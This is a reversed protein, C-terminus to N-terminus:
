NLAKATSMKGIAGDRWWYRRWWGWGRSGDDGYGSSGGRAAGCEGGGEDGVSGGCRTDECSTALVRMAGGEEGLTSRPWLAGIKSRSSSPAAVANVAAKGPSALSSSAPPPPLVPSQPPPPFSSSLPLLLPLPLSSLAASSATPASLPRRLGLIVYFSYCVFSIM